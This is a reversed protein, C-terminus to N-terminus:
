MDEKVDKADGKTKNRNVIHINGLGWSRISTPARKKQFSKSLPLAPPKIGSDIKSVYLPSWLDYLIYFIYLEFIM